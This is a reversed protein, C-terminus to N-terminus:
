CTSARSSSSWMRAMLALARSYPSSKKSTTKSTSSKSVIFWIARVAAEGHAVRVPLPPHLVVLERLAVGVPQPADVLHDDVVIGAVGVQLFGVGDGVLLQHHGVDVAVGIEELVVSQNLLVSRLIISSIALWAVRTRRCM